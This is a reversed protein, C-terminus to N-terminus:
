IKKQEVTAGELRTPLKDGVYYGTEANGGRMQRTFKFLKEKNGKAVKKAANYEKVEFWKRPRAM